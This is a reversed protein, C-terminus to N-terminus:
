RARQGLEVVHDDSVRSDVAHHKGDTVANRQDADAGSRPTYAGPPGRGPRAMNRPQGNRRQDRPQRARPGTRGSGQKTASWELWVDAPTANDRRDRGMDPRAHAPRGFLSARVRSDAILGRPHVYPQDPPESGLSRATPGQYRAAYPRIAARASPRRSTNAPVRHGAMGPFWCPNFPRSGSLIQCTRATPKPPLFLDGCSGV